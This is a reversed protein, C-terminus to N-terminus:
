HCCDPCDEWLVEHPCVERKPKQGVLARVLARFLYGPSSERAIRKDHEERRAEMKALAWQVRERSDLGEAREQDAAFMARAAMRESMERTSPIIDYTHPYLIRAYHEVRRTDIVQTM